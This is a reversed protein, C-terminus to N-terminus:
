DLDNYIKVTHKWQEMNKKNDNASYREKIM